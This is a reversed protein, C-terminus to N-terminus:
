SLDKRFHWEVIRYGLAAHAAPSAPYDPITDSAMERCGVSRAWAEAAEALRRGVGQGRVDVEVYWGELYGIRDTTCGPATTHIAVEVLGCLGGDPREAVFVPQHEQDAWLELSQQKLDDLPHDPWLARRLRLWEAQDAELLPRINIM